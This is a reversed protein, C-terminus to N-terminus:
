DQSPQLRSNRPQSLTPLKSPRSSTAVDIKLDRCPYCCPLDHCPFIADRRLLSSASGIEPRSMSKQHRSRSLGSHAFVIDRCSISTAVYPLRWSPRSRSKADRGPRPLPQTLKTNRGLTKLDRGPSPQRPTDHGACAWCARSRRQSHTRGAQQACCRGRGPCQARLTRERGPKMTHASHVRGLKTVTCQKPDSNPYQEHVSNM